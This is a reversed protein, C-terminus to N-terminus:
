MAKEQKYHKQHRIKGVPNYAGVFCSPCRIVIKYVDKVTNHKISIQKINPGWEAMLFNETRLDSSKIRPM